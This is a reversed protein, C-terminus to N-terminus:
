RCAPHSPAGATQHQQRAVQQQHQHLQQNSCEGAWRSAARNLRTGLQQLSRNSGSAGASMAATGSSGGSSIKSSSSASHPMTQPFNARTGAIAGHAHRAHRNRPVAGAGRGYQRVGPRVHESGGGAERGAQRGAQGCNAAIHLMLVRPLDLLLNILALNHPSCGVALSHTHAHTRARTHALAHSCDSSRHTVSGATCGAQITFALGAASAARHQRARHQPHMHTHASAQTGAM